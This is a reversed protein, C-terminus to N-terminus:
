LLQTDCRDNLIIDKLQEASEKWSLWPMNHSSPHHGDRYLRMWEKIASTLDEAETGSYYYAHVGAVEHFVPIDRAIIPIKHQAAEILPLGFGEGESAAILCTSAAYVKELYEDSIGELWFLRKGLEVHNRLKEILAEMMWGQKGVLVLNVDHGAQWLLEFAALTQAQRKRPEVTGVSLFTPRSGLAYLIKDANAPLGQSPVSNDMDAGLHFWNIALPRLRPPGNRKLWDRLEDAVARSICIVGDFKCVTYLWDRHVQDVSHEKPWYKPFQIPLLDYLVFYVLIGDQRAQWLFNAQVRTTHHQLDLGLFIDGPRTSINEDNLSAQEAGLAQMYRRAYRYGPQDITAYVPEVSYGALPMGLLQHLISRTVRQVGTRADRHVLESIDVFIQRAAKEPFSRDVAYAIEKIEPEQIASGTSDSIAQILKGVTSQLESFIEQRPSFISEFATIARLATLDWSFRKAQVLGHARLSERFTEDELAQGMKAAIDDCNLPDFLADSNGIVEPLSTLNAGIVAAGCAMAELAPLGFGEYWSPFVFVSCLNYLAILEDDPVYDTFIIEGAILGAKLAVARLEALQGERIKGALVLQHAKRLNPALRAFAQILHSLNKREDAGGTYLIFSRTINLKATLAAADMQCFALPQFCDEVATSVDVVQQPLVDLHELGEQRSFASIALLLSSHSLNAIKREYFARYSPSPKLYQDPNLFPILDYLSVSVPTIQDLRGISTVADDLYGEFLSCIHIVDPQLSVLFAERILEAIERRLANGSEVERVPGPAYWVRINEQPLLGEFAARIPEITDPLLGSLALFVEHEGRNRAIGQAFSLTYRGIGRFRSETQAGQMDIVIRM